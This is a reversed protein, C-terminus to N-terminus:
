EVDGDQDVYGYGDRMFYGSDLNNFCDRGFGGPIWTLAIQTKEALVGALDGLFPWHSVVGAWNNASKEPFFFYKKMENVNNWM